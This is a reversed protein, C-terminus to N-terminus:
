RHFLFVFWLVGVWVQFSASGCARVSVRLCKRRPASREEGRQAAGRLGASGSGMPDGRTRKKPTQTDTTTNKQKEGNKEEEKKRPPSSDAQNSQSPPPAPKTRTKNTKTQKKKQPPPPPTKSKNEKRHRTLHPAHTSDLSMPQPPISTANEQPWNKRKPLYALYTPLYTRLYTHMCEHTCTHVRRNIGREKPMTARNMLVHRRLNSHM